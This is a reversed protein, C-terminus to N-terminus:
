IGRHYVRWEILLLLLLVWGAIMWIDRRFPSAVALIYEEAKGPTYNSDLRLDSVQDTPVSVVFHGIYNQSKSQQSIKYTGIENTDYFVPAPYSDFEYKRGGPSTITISAADPLPLIPLSQCAFIQRNFVMDQPLMWNLLNQILIPFDAKLPINSEHLSFSFIAIKRGDKEGIMFIPNEENDQLLVSFNEPVNLKKAKAIQYDEPEVYQLLSSYQSQLNQKAKVASIEGEVLLGIEKHSSPSFVIINGDEPLNDPLAASGDYIYLHFDTTELTEGPNAKVTEIDDRLSIARELFVNRETIMLVKIHYDEDVAVIGANDLMLSDEELISVKIEQASGPIDFWYVPLEEGASLNIEKVNQLMGDVKLELTVIREEGYNAVRSLATINNDRIDYAMHTIAANQGNGSAIHFRLNEQNYSDSAFHDSYVHIQGGSESQDQLLTQALQVASNLDSIGNSVEIENAYQALVEKDGSPDALVFPQQGAQVITMIDGAKMSDIFDLLAMRSAEMRSPKIDTAQMRASTDLVAIYYTGGEGGYFAPRALSVAFLVVALIQLIFLLQTRLRQWPRAAQLDRSVQQWLM